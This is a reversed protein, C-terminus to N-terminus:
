VPQHFSASALVLGSEFRLFPALDSPDDQGGKSISPPYPSIGARRM